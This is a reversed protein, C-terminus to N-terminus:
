LMLHASDVCFLHFYTRLRKISIFCYVFFISRELLPCCKGLGELVTWLVWTLFLCFVFSLNLNYFLYLSILEKRLNISHNLNSLVELVM